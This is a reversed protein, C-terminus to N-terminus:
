LRIVASGPVDPDPAETLPREIGVSATNGPIRQVINCVPGAFCLIGTETMPFEPAAMRSEPARYGMAAMLQSARCDRVDAVCGVREVPDCDSDLEGGDPPFM